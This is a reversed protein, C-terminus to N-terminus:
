RREERVLHMPKTLLGAADVITVRDLLGAEKLLKEAQPVM